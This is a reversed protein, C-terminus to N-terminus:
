PQSDDMADRMRTLVDSFLEKRDDMQKSDDMEAEGELITIAMEFPIKFYEMLFRFVDGGEGCGFCHYIKRKKDVYFKESGCDGFPCNGRHRYGLDELKVYDGVVKVLDSTPKNRLKEIDSKSYEKLKDM